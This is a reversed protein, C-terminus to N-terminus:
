RVATFAAMDLAYRAPARGGCTRRTGKHPGSDRNHPALGALAAPKLGM